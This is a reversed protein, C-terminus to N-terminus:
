LKPYNEPGYPLPQDLYETVPSTFTANKKFPTDGTRINSVGPVQRAHELWFTQPQELRYDHAKSPVPPGSLSGDRCYDRHTTSLSEMPESPPHVAEEFVEKSHKQYLLWELMAERQGRVPLGTRWPRRYCDKMTTSKALGALSQLTLLGHHGHRFFFGETGCEPSPVRDLDNTAREEQWNYLLCKGRVPLERAPGPPWLPFAEEETAPLEGLVPGPIGHCPPMEVAYAPTRVVVAPGAEAGDPLGEGPCCLAEADPCAPGGAAEGAPPEEEVRGPAAAAAEGGSLVLPPGPLAPAWRPPLRLPSVPLEQADCVPLPSKCCLVSRLFGLGRLGPDRARVVSPRVSPCGHSRTLPERAREANRSGGQWALADGRPSGPSGGEGGGRSSGAPPRQGAGDGRAAVPLGAYPPRKERPVGRWLPSRPLPKEEHGGEGTRSWGESRRREHAQATEESVIFLFFPSPGPPEM